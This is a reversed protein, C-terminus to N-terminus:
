EGNAVALVPLGATEDGVAFWNEGTHWLGPYYRLNEAAYATRIYFGDGPVRGPLAMPYGYSASGGAAADRRPVPFLAFLTGGLLLRRTLRVVGDKSVPGLRMREAIASGDNLELM